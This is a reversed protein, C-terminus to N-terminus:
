PQNWGNAKLYEDLNTQKLDPLSPPLYEDLNAQKPDPLSPPLDADVSEHGTSIGADASSDAVPLEVDVPVGEATEIMQTRGATEADVNGSTLDDAPIESQTKKELLSEYDKCLKRLHLLEKKTEWHQERLRSLEARIEDSQREAEEKRQAALQKEGFVHSMEDVSNVLALVVAMSQSLQPNNLMVRRIMEDAKEAIQRIYAENEAAVLQYNMSGIKVHIRKIDEAM